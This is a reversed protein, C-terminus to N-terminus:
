GEPDGGQIMFGNIVRHFSLGDYYGSQALEIFNNVTNPAVEPYLEAVVTGYETFEITVTPVDGTAVYAEPTTTSPQQETQTQPTTQLALVSIFAIIAIVSIILIKKM